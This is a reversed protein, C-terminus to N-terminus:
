LLATQCRLRLAYAASLLSDPRPNSNGVCAPLAAPSLFVAALPLSHIELLLGRKKRRWGDSTLLPCRIFNMGKKFIVRDPMRLGIEYLVM